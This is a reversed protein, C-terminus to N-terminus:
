MTNADSAESENTQRKTGIIEVQKTGEVRQIREYNPSHRLHGIRCFFLLFAMTTTEWDFFNPGCNPTFLFLCTRDRRVQVRTAAVACRHEVSQAFDHM